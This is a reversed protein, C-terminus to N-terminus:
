VGGMIKAYVVVDPFFSDFDRQLEQYNHPLEAMAEDTAYPKSLRNTIRELAKAIGAQERYALLWNELIMAPKIEALRKPLIYSHKELVQYFDEVFRELPIPSYKDWDKALFHDYFVDILVGAYKRNKKTIRQKSQLVVPHSDTFGDIKQHFCIGQYIKDYASFEAKNKIFDGLLNGLRSEDDPPSLYLHALYNM